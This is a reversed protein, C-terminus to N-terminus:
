AINRMTYTCVWFPWFNKFHFASCTSGCDVSKPCKKCYLANWCLYHRVISWLKTGNEAINALTDFDHFIWDCLNSVIKCIFYIKFSESPNRSFNVRTSKICLKLSSNVSLVHRTFLINYPIWSFIYQHEINMINLSQLCSLSNSFIRFHTYKSMKMLEFALEIAKAEASFITAEDLVSEVLPEICVNM